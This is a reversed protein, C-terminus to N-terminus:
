RRPLSGSCSCAAAPCFKTQISIRLSAGGAVFGGWATCASRLRPDAAPPTLARLIERTDLGDATVPVDTGAELADRWAQAYLVDLYRQNERLGPHARILSRRAYAVKGEELHHSAQYFAAATGLMFRAAAQIESVFEAQAAPAALSAWTLTEEHLV